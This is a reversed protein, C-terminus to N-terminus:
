HATSAASAPGTSASAAPVLDPEADIRLGSAQLWGLDLKDASATGTFPLPGPPPHDASAALMRQWWTGFETPQLHLDARANDGDLKLTVSLPQKGSAPEVALTVKDIATAHDQKPATTTAPAGPNAAGASAGSPPALAPYRLTGGLQLALAQGGRWHGQGALQLAVGAQNAFDVHVPDFDITGDHSASPVTDLSATMRRGSASRASADLQFPRGPVLEGTDLGLEFLLPTGGDTLTGQTMHVGTVITPLRPPGKHRPLRALLIKLEGLDIRPAEIEIREIAVDGHLLARWPVVITAGGAQLIPTDSGANTLSFHQLRVAPRPFLAPMAPAQMELKVGVGALDSELLRTFRGPQLLTNVHIALAILLLVITIVIALAIWRARHRQWSPFAPM